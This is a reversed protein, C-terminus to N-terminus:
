DDKYIRYDNPTQNFLQKFKRSFYSIEKFGVAIAIEEISLNTKLLINKAIQMRYNNLYESFSIGLEKKFLQGLYATNTHLEKSISKLALPESYRQNVLSILKQTLDSYQTVKLESFTKDISQLLVEKLEESNQVHNLKITYMQFSFQYMKHFAQYIKLIIIYAINSVYALSPSTLQAQEIIEIAKVEIKKRDRVNLAADLALFIDKEPSDQSMFVQDTFEEHLFVYNNLLLSSYERIEEASKISLNFKNFLSQKQGIFITLNTIFELNKLQNAVAEMEKKIIEIPKDELIFGILNTELQTIYIINNQVLLHIINDYVQKHEEINNDTRWDLICARCTDKLVPLDLLKVREIFESKEIHNLFIRKTIHEKLIEKKPIKELSNKLKSLIIEITQFLEKKNLPKLLYNEIGLQLGRKVFDFEDYGSLIISKASPQLKNLEEILELGTMKDMSIDTLLIDIKKSKIVEVAEEGSNATAVITIGLEEWPIILQLGEVIVEEDDVILLRYM